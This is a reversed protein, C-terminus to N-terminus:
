AKRKEWLWAEPWFEPSVFPAHCDGATRGMQAEKSKEQPPLFFLLTPHKKEFRAGLESLFEASAGRPVAFGVLGACDKVRRATHEAASIFLESAAVPNEADISLVVGIRKKEASKLVERLRALIAEDFLGPQAAIKSLEIRLLLMNVGKESLSALAFEASNESFFSVSATLEAANVPFSNGDAGTLM